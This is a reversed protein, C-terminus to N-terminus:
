VRSDDVEGVTHRYFYRGIQIAARRALEKAVANDGKFKAVQVANLETSHIYGSEDVPWLRVRDSREEEAANLVKIAVSILAATSTDEIETPAFFDRVEIWIVTDAGLKRGIATASYREFRSDAQRFRTVADPHVVAPVADHALLEEGLYRELLDRTRPWVVREAPDDVLVVTTAKPLEFQPEIKTGRGMGMYYALGGYRGCGPLVAGSLMLLLTAYTQTVARTM